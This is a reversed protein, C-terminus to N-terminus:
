KKKPTDKESTSTRPNSGLPAECNGSVSDVCITLSIRSEFIEVTYYARSMVVVEFSVSCVSLLLILVWACYVVINLRFTNKVRIPRNSTM